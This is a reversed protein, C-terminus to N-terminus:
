GGGQMAMSGGGNAVAGTTGTPKLSASTSVNNRPLDQMGKAAEVLRNFITKTM